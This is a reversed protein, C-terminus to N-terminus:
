LNPRRAAAEIQLIRATPFIGVVAFDYLKAGLSLKVPLMPAPLKAARELAEGDPHLADIMPSQNIVAGRRQNLNIQARLSLRSQRGACIQHRGGFVARDVDGTLLGDPM